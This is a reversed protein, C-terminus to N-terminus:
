NYNVSYGDLILFLDKFKEQEFVIEDNHHGAVLLFIKDNKGTLNIFNNISGDVVANRLHIEANSYKEVFSVKFTENREHLIKFFVTMTEAFGTIIKKLKGNRKYYDLKKKGLILWILPVGKLHDDKSEPESFVIKEVDTFFNEIEGTKRM